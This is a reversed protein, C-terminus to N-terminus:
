SWPEDNIELQKQSAILVKRNQETKGIKMCSFLLFCVEADKKDLLLLKIDEKFNEGTFSEDFEAIKIGNKYISKRKKYHVKIEYTIEDINVSFITKRNNQSILESLTVNDKKIHYVMRWKWFQFQKTATYIVKEDENFVEIGFKGFEMFWASSYLKEKSSSPYISLINNYHHISYLNLQM